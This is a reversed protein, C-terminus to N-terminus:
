QGAVIQTNPDNGWEMWSGAYNGVKPYGLMRLALYTVSSRQGTHCHAIVEKDKTVGASAYMESLEDASKLTLDNFNAKWEINVAGPMHGGRKARVDEGRYEPASRADVVVM